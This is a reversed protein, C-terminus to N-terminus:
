SLPPSVIRAAAAPMREIRGLRAMIDTPVTELIDKTADKLIQVEQEHLENIRETVDDLRQRVADINASVEDSNVMARIERDLRDAYKNLDDKSATAIDIEPYNLDIGESKAYDQIEKITSFRGIARAIDKIGGGEPDDERIADNIFKIFEPSRALEPGLREKIRDLADDTGMGYAEVMNSFPEGQTIEDIDEGTNKKYWQAFDYDLNMVNEFNARDALEELARPDINQHKTTIAEMANSRYLDFPNGVHGLGYTSSVGQIRDANANLWQRVEKAHAPDVIKKDGTSMIQEIHVKGGRLPNEQITAIPTGDPGRYSVISLGGQFLSDIYSTTTATAPVGKPRKGTHPEVLPAYGKYDGVNHAGQALCHNLDKTDMCLARVTDERSLPSDKDFRIFKAGSETTKDVMSTPVKDLFAKRYKAYADKDKSLAKLKDQEDKYLMTVLRQMSVKSVNEPKIEGKLLADYLKDQFPRIPNVGYSAVDYIPEYPRMADFQPRTEAPIGLEDYVDTRTRPQIFSDAMDEFRIGAETKATQQGINGLTLEPNAAHITEARKRYASATESYPTDSFLSLGTKEIEALV